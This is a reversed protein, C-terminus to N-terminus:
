KRIAPLFLRYEVSQGYVAFETLHDLVVTLTQNGRNLAGVVSKYSAAAEDWFYFQLTDFYFDQYDVRALSLTLTYSKAFHTVPQGGQDQAQIFFPRGLIELGGPGSHMASIGHTITITGSFAAAPFELLAPLDMQELPLAGDQSGDLTSAVPEAGLVVNDLYGVDAGDEFEGRILLGRLDGLVAEMEQRTAGRLGQTHNTSQTATFIEDVGVVRWAASESLPLAYATWLQRPNVHTNYILALSRGRLVVDPAQYQNAMNSIQRQDFRLSKGYAAAMNGLFKDPAVWYWTGGQVDDTARLHGGPHGGLLRHDPVGAGQQVDGDVRWGERSSTFRSEALGSGPQALLAFDSLHDTSGIAQQADTEVDSMLLDWRSEGQNWGYLRMSAADIGTLDAASFDILVTLPKQLDTIPSGTGTTASLGMVPGVQMLGQPLPHQTGSGIAMNVQSAGAAGPPVHVKVGLDGVSGSDPPGGKWYVAQNARTFLAWRRLGQALERRQLSDGRSTTIYTHLFADLYGGQDDLDMPRFIPATSQSAYQLLATYVALTGSYTRSSDSHDGGFEVEHMLWGCAWLPDEPGKVTVHAGFPEGQADAAEICERHSWADGLSHLYVGLAQVSGSHISGTNAAPVTQTIFCATAEYINAVNAITYVPTWTFPVTSSYGFTAIAALDGREGMAWSELAGLEEARDYHPFHFFINYPGWRSTFCGPCEILGTGGMTVEEVTHQPDPCAASPTAQSLPPAMPFATPDADFAYSAGGATFTGPDTMQSYLQITAADQESFGAAIALAGVLDFHISSVSEEGNIPYSPNLPDYFPLNEEDWALATALTLSFLAAVLLTVTVLLLNRRWKRNQISRVLLNELM